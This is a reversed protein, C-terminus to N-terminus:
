LVPIRSTPPNPTKGTQKRRYPKFPQFPCAAWIFSWKQREIWSMFIVYFKGGRTATYIFGFWIICLSCCLLRARERRCYPFKIQAYFDWSSCFAPGMECTCGWVLRGVVVFSKNNKPPRHAPFSFLDDFGHQIIARIGQSGFLLPRASCLSKCELHHLAAPLTKINHKSQSTKMLREWVAARAATPGRSGTLSRKWPKGEPLVMPLCCPFPGRCGTRLLTESTPGWLPCWVLLLCCSFLLKAKRLHWLLM